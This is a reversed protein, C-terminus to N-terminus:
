SNGNSNYREMVDKHAQLFSTRWKLDPELHCGEGWENWANIFVLNEEESFPNFKDLTKELWEKYLAPTSGIWCAFSRNKKRSANDWGPMVCPYRKYSPMPLSAIYRSYNKYSHISPIKTKGFIPKTLTNLRGVIFDKYKSYGCTCHPQFETGADYGYKLYEPSNDNHEVAIFYLELGEKAAEERFIRLTQDPNPLALPRWIAFVCKGNIRIYRPDKFATLLYRIHNRDDEESYTQKILINDARDNWARTWSENAWCLMFPFDPKGSALVEEFPREMLRKGSFWYHYYCFGYVGFSKAMEAQSIRSEELRLDVFGLDGPLQPQYHGPFRPKSTTVNTWETYGKGWAEDNLPLPHYQPLYFAITRYKMM